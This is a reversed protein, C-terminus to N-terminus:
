IMVETEAHTPTASEPRMGGYRLWTEIPTFAAVEDADEDDPEEEYEVM